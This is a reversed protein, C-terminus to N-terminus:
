YTEMISDSLRACAVQGTPYLVALGVSLTKFYSPYFPQRQLSIQLLITFQLTKTDHGKSM